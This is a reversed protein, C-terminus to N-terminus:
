RWHVFMDLIGGHISFLHAGLLALRHYAGARAELELNRGLPEWRRRSALLGVDCCCHVLQAAAAAALSGLVDFNRCLQLLALLPAILRTLLYNRAM